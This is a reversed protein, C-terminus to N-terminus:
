DRLQDREFTAVHCGHMLRDALHRSDAVAQLPLADRESSHQLLLFSRAPEGVRTMTVSAASRNLSRAVRAMAKTRSADTTRAQISGSSCLSRASCIMPRTAASWANAGDRSSSSTPLERNCA